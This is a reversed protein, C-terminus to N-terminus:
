WTVIVSELPHISILSISISLAGNNSTFGITVGTEQKPALSPEISSLKSPPIAGILKLQVSSEEAPWTLFLKDGPKYETKIVSPEPHSIWSSKTIISGLSIEIAPTIVSAM